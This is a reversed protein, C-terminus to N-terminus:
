LRLESVRQWEAGLNRERIMSDLAARDILCDAKFGTAMHIINFHGRSARETEVAIVERPPCYFDNPPFASPLLEVQATTLELVPDIDLTVRPVGYAMSAASGTVMYAVGLRNLPRVFILFLEDDEPM